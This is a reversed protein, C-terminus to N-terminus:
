FSTAICSISTNVFDKFLSAAGKLLGFMVIVGLVKTWDMKAFFGVLLTVVVVIFFIMVSLEGTLWSIVKCGLTSFGPLNFPGSTGQASAQNACLALFMFVVLKEHIQRANSL